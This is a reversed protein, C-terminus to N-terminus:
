CSICSRSGTERVRVPRTDRPLWSPMRGDAPATESHSGGGGGEGQHAGGQGAPGHERALGDFPGVAGSAAQVAEREVRSEGRPVGLEGGGARGRRPAPG